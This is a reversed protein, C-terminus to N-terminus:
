RMTITQDLEILEINSKLWISEMPQLDDRAPHIRVTVRTEHTELEITGAISDV